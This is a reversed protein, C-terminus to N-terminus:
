TKYGNELFKKETIKKGEKAMFPGKNINKSVSFTWAMEVVLVVSKWLNRVWINIPKCGFVPNFCIQLVKADKSGM